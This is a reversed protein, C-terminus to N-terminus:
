HMLNIPHKNLTSLLFVSSRGHVLKIYITETNPHVSQLVGCLYETLTVTRQASIDVCYM